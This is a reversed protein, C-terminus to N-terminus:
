MTWVGHFKPLPKLIPKAKQFFSDKQVIM